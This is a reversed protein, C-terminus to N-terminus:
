YYNNDIPNHLSVCSARVQREVAEGWQEAYVRLPPLPLTRPIIPRQSSFLRYVAPRHNSTLCLTHLFINCITLQHMPVPQGLPVHYFIRRPPFFTQSGLHHM